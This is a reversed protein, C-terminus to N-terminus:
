IVGPGSFEIRGRDADVTVRTGLPLTRAARQHGAPFGFVVPFPSGALRDRLWAEVAEPSEGGRVGPSISGIVMAQLADFTGSRELQTLMRDLRYTDEAVDEWFLVSDRGSVAEATGALSALLSLCGGKLPGSGTGGAVVHEDGFVHTAPTQGALVSQWDLGPEGAMTVAVMPGYFCALDARGQLLAFLATLDSGGLHILPRARIEDPDLLPLVRAAGYGGRAFFVADVSPDRLLELYGEARQRDSGALFGSRAHINPALTIRYGRAQLSDVGAALRDPDM